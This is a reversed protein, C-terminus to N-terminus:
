MPLLWSNLSTTNSSTPNSCLPKNVRSLQLQYQRSIKFSANYFGCGSFVCGQVGLTYRPIQSYTWWSYNWPQWIRGKWGIRHFLYKGGSGAIVALYLGFYIESPPLIHCTHIELVFLFFYWFSFGQIDGRQCPNESFYLNAESLITPAIITYIVCTHIYIYIYICVCM